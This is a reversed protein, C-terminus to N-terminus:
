GPVQIHGPDDPHTWPFTFLTGEIYIFCAPDSASKFVILIKHSFIWMMKHYLHIRHFPYFTSSDKECYVKDLLFEQDGEQACGIIGPRDNIYKLFQIHLEARIDKKIQEWHQQCVIATFERIRCRNFVVPLPILPGTDEVTVRADRGLFSAAFVVMCHYM